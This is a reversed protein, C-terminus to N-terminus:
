YPSGDPMAPPAVPNGNVDVAVWSATTATVPLRQNPITNNVNFGEPAFFPFYRFIGQRASDTLVNTYVIQRTNSINQEWLTYFFTKNHGDYVHPIRVPGGLAVTYQHNNRWAKPTSNTTVGTATDTFPTHNNSWTNADLASNRIYWAVSGQYKNTGSRT